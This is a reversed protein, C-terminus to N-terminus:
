YDMESQGFKQKNLMLPRGIYFTSNARSFEDDLEAENLEKSPFFSINARGVYKFSSNVNYARKPDNLRELLPLLPEVIYDRANNRGVAELIYRTAGGLIDAMQIFHSAKSNSTEKKHCSNVFRIQSEKFTVSERAGVVAIPHTSFWPDIELRGEQDHYCREVVVEEQDRHLSSIHRKLNSRYFRRYCNTLQEGKGEGFRSMVLRNTDFGVISFRWLDHEHTLRELWARALDEKQSKRANPKRDSIGRWKLEHDYKATERDCNLRTIADGVREWPISIVTIYAWSSEESPKIEDAFM